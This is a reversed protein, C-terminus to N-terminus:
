ATHSRLKELRRIMNKLFSDTMFQTTDYNARLRYRLYDRVVFIADNLIQRKVQPGLDPFMAADQRRIYDLVEGINALIGADEATDVEIKM